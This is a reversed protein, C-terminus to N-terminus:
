EDIFETPAHLDRRQGHITMSNLADELSQFEEDSLEVNCAGLNELIREQNKSGPIPVVHPYKHLMWALSIQANSANKKGAMDSLVELLPRNAIMNEKKLQPVWQRVDDGKFEQNPDVKGSLYGSAIPSFPVFGINHELCYPIVGKEYARDMMSYINQVASLPTIRQVRELYAVNVMSMGWGCILGEEILRGMGEAIEEVAIEPNVRHLYYLDIYDTQLREFSGEVHRRLAHYVSGDKKPEETAMHLKTALVIDKRFDRIAKGVIRENHGRNEPRLYPGYGEATDFFTCGYDFAKHIAEMAYDEPPIEGYGHSFGMCGMGIESVTLDRLKRTKM